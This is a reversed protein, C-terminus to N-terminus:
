NTSLLTLHGENPIVRDALQGWGPGQGEGLYKARLLALVLYSCLLPMHSISPVKALTEGELRQQNLIRFRQVFDMMEPGAM